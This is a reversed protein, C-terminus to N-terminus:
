DQISSLSAEITQAKHSLYLTKQEQILSQINLDRKKNNIKFQYHQEMPIRNFKQNLEEQRIKSYHWNKQLNRVDEFHKRNQELFPQHQPKNHLLGCLKAHKIIQNMEAASYIKTSNMESLKRNVSYSSNRSQFSEDNCKMSRSRQKSVRDIHDLYGPTIHNDMPQAESIRLNSIGLLDRYKRIYQQKWKLKNPNELNM